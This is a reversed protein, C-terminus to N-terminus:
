LPALLSGLRVPVCVKVMTFYLNCFYLVEDSNAMLGDGSSRVSVSYMAAGTAFNIYFLLGIDKTVLLKWPVMSKQSPWRRALAKGPAMLSEYYLFLSVLVIGLCLPTLVAATNWDYTAGAWTFGLIM